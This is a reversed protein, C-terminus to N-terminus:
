SLSNNRGTHFLSPSHNRHSVGKQLIIGGSTSCKQVDELLRHSGCCFSTWFSHRGNYKSQFYANFLQRSHLSSCVVNRYLQSYYLGQNRSFCKCNDATCLPVLLPFPRVANWQCSLSRKPSHQFLRANSPVGATSSSGAGGGVFLYFLCVLTQSLPM